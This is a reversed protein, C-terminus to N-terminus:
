EEEPECWGIFFLGGVFNGMGGGRLAMQFVMSKSNVFLLDEYVSRINNSYQGKKFLALHNNEFNHM